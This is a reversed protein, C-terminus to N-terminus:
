YGDDALVEVGSFVVVRGGRGDRRGPVKQQSLSM